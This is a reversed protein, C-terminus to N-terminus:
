IKWLFDPFKGIQSVRLPTVLMYLVLICSDQKRIAKFKLQVPKSIITHKQVITPLEAINCMSPKSPMKHICNEGEVKIHTRLVFRLEEPKLILHKIQQTMVIAGKVLLFFFCLSFPSLRKMHRETVHSSLSWVICKDNTLILKNIVKFSYQKQWCNTKNRKHWIECVTQAGWNFSLVPDTCDLHQGGLRFHQVWRVLCRTDWWEWKVNELLCFYSIM